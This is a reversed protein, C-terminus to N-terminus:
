PLGVQQTLPAIPGPFVALVRCGRLPQVLFDHVGVFADLAEWRGRAAEPTVLEELAAPRYADRTFEKILDRLKSLQAPDRVLDLWPVGRQVAQSQSFAAIGREAGAEMLALVHWPVSSWPPAIVANEHEDPSPNDLYVEVIPSHYTFTLDALIIKSEEVRVIRAGRFRERMVQTAAAIEPDFVKSARSEGWRLPADRGGVDIPNAM